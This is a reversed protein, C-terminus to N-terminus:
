NDGDLLTEAIVYTLRTAIERSRAESVLFFLALALRRAALLLSRMGFFARLTVPCGLLRPIGEICGLVVM